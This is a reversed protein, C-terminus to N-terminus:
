LKQRCVSYHKQRYNFFWHGRVAGFNCFNFIIIREFIGIHQGGHNKNEDKEAEKESEKNHKEM